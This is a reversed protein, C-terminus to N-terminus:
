TSGPWSLREPRPEVSSAYEIYTKMPVPNMKIKQVRIEIEKGIQVAVRHALPEDTHRVQHQDREDKEPRHKTNRLNGMDDEAADASHSLAESIRYLRQRNPPNYRRSELERPKNIDDCFM